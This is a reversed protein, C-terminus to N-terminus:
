TRFRGSDNPDKYAPLQETSEGFAAARFKKRAVGAPQIEYTISPDRNGEMAKRMVNDATWRGQISGRERVVEREGTARKVRVLDWYEEQREDQDRFGM